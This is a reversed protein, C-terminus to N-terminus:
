KKLTMICRIGVPYTVFKGLALEISMLARLIPNTRRQKIQRCVQSKKKIDTMQKEDRRNRKKTMAFLPYIFFGLHSAREVTFGAKEALLRLDKIRYRRYHMLHKDYFDYLHPGAPVEIYALGGPKLVRYVGKLAKLDDEIHELVNLLVIGEFSSDPLPCQTIDFQVIPIGQLREALKVLPGSIFDSGVLLAHSARRQLDELLFGSSCGVELIAVVPRVLIPSISNIANKRSARDIFHNEGATEEHMQTLDDSWGSQM